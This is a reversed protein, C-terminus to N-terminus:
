LVGDIENIKKQLIKAADKNDLVQWLVPDPFLPHYPLIECGLVKAELAVRGTAYVRKYKAMEKLLDERPMDGILDVDNDFHINLEDYHKLKSLRGVFAVDKTKKNTKFREVYNIDISLPLYIVHGLYGLEKILHPLSTVILMDKFDMMWNYVEPHFTNHMFVISHDIGENNYANITIWNRTTKVNPIINKVIEKSYYYAGNFRNVGLANWRELYSKSTHDIIMYINYCLCWLM